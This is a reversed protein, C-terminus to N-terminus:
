KGSKFETYGCAGCSTRDKHEALFIGPGCRPCEQKLREVGDKGVKYFDGKKISTMENM